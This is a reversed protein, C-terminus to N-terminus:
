DAFSDIFAEDTDYRDGLLAAREAEAQREGEQWEATWFWAQTAAIPLMPRLILHDGEVIVEVQAGPEDLRFKKRLEAPIVITGRGQMNVFTSGM